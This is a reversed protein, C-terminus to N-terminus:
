APFMPVNEAETGDKSTKLLKKAMTYDNYAELFAEKLNKTKEEGFVTQIQKLEEGAEYLLMEADNLLNSSEFELAILSVYEVFEITRLFAKQKAIFYLMLLTERDILTIGEKEEGLSPFLFTTLITSSNTETFM